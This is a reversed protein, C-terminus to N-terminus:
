KRLSSRAARADRVAAISAEMSPLSISVPADALQHLNDVAKQVGRDQRDFYSETWRAATRLDSRFTAEDRMLLAQRATLLRLKLTQRLFFSQEPLLPAQAPGDLRQIRVAQGLEAVM